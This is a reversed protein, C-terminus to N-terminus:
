LGKTAYGEFRKANSSISLPKGSFVKVKKVEISGEAPYPQTAKPSYNFKAFVSPGEYGPKGRLVSDDIFLGDIVVNQPLRCAYGFDHTGDNNGGIVVIGTTGPSVPRLISNKIIISGDWSSGYDERLSFFYGSRVECGEIKMTGSGVARTAMHGFVCNKLTVDVVGQHADFRSVRCGEMYLSKCFNSGMLGWYVKDDINRTQNCNIMKVNVSNGINLDYSGMSVPKGAAGITVYTKHTTFLIDKITVNACYEISIFGRYPAGHDGEGEVYHKIGQVLTNSRAIVIGRGHYNYQSPAQNAITKFIGGQVTLKKKDVPYAKLSTIEDYDWIVKSLNSIKGSPSALLMERQPTGSNQNLGKRIYVKHNDNTVMLLCEASLKVGLSKAGAKLSSVGKVEFPDASGKVVFINTRINELERDDIVFHAKGFDTDTMIYATKSAGGIYYTKSDDARVPLGKANAAEHTAVIADLDDHVGDGVAGFMEYNLYKQASAAGTAALILLISTAIRKM